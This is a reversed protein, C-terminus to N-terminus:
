VGFHASMAADAERALPDRWNGLDGEPIIQRKPITVSEVQVWQMKTGRRGFTKRKWNDGKGSAIRNSVPVKFKLYKGRKAKIVMGYQHPKAYRSNSGIRFGSATPAYTFSNLLARTSNLTKGGMGNSPEWPKGYPDVSDRFQNAVLTRAAQGLLKKLNDHFSGNAVSRLRRRLDRLDSGGTVGSM